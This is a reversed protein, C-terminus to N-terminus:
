FYCAEPHIPLLETREGSIAVKEMILIKRAGGGSHQVDFRSSRSLADNFPPRHPSLRVFVVVVVVLNEFKTTVSGQQIGRPRVCVCVCM